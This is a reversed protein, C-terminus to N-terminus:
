GGFSGDKGPAMNEGRYLYLGEAHHTLSRQATEFTALIKATPRESARVFIRDFEGDGDDRCPTKKGGTPLGLM